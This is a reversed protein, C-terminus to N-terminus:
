TTSQAAQPRKTANGNVKEQPRLTITLIGEGTNATATTVATLLTGASLKPTATLTVVQNVGVVRDAAVLAVDQDDVFHDADAVTGVNIVNAAATLTVTTQFDVGVVEYDNDPDVFIVAGGGAIALGVSLDLFVTIKKDKISPVCNQPKVAM